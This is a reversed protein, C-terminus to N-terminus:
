IRTHLIIVLPKDFIGLSQLQVVNYKCPMYFKILDKGPVSRCVNKEAHALMLTKTHRQSLSHKEAHRDNSVIGASNGIRESAASYEQLVVVKEKRCLDYVTKDIVILKAARHDLSLILPKLVKLVFFYSIHELPIQLTEDSPLPTQTFFIPNTTGQNSSPM